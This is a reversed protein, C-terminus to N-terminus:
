EAFLSRLDRMAACIRDGFRRSSTQQCSVRSSIHFFITDEGGIIYSVGYGDYSVPGFGGGCSVLEPHRTLDLKGTLGHPTQSTSLKWQSKLAKDLFPSYIQCYKSVVYLAFLHRDVGRGTMADRYMSQHREAAARVLSRLEANTAIGAEFARVFKCSENTCSRVTETRGERFLRTMSAEYTLCFQGGSDRFYALQLALQIFADPSMSCAKIAGKGFANHVVLHLEVDNILNRAIQLQQDITEICAQGLDWQLRVPAPLEAAPSSSSRVVCHGDSNYCSGSQDYLITVEEWIQGLIPADAWSHEANLGLRGNAFVVMTFSKDFWRNCGDGHLLLKAYRNLKADDDPDYDGAEDDLALVFAAEELAELSTKNVGRSFHLSRARAWASRNGATLAGLQREGPAPESKDDLIQQLQAELEHPELWRNNHRFYLAYYRGAHHVAIHGTDKLHVLYDREEGPVRTTAFAREYQWSCLPVSDGAFLPRMEERCIRRWCQLLGWTVNAARAAQVRTPQVFLCDMGYYNSNIMIPERSYLYVFEEWWDSVYNPAWWSKLRLYFQLKRGVGSLETDDLLPEMSTLYRRVSDSLAPVPLTPLAGQFSYLGVRRNGSGAGVLLRMSAAWLRTRLSVSGRSEYIWGHYSLLLGILWRHLMAATLWVTIGIVMYSVYTDHPPVVKLYWQVARNLPAAFGFSLDSGLMAASIMLLMVLWLSSPKAPYVGDRLRNRLRACRKKYARLGSQWVQRLAARDFEIRVGRNTVNLTFVVAQHAEAMN